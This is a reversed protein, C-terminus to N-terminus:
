SSADFLKELMVSLEEKNYKIYKDVNKTFEVNTTYRDYFRNFMPCLIQRVEKIVQARLEVDPIAYNKQTTFAEEFETNFNRFKEKISDKQQKTLQTQIKNDQIKTNDMLHEILPIWSSNTLYQRSRYTDLQKKIIKDIKDLLSDRILENLVTSKISKFVYHTNNLIFLCSLIPKKYNKSKAEIDFLLLDLIENIYDSTTKCPFSVNTNASIEIMLQVSDQHECLKKVTNM